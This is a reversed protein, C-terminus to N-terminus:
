ANPILSEIQEFTEKVAIQKGPRLTLITCSISNTQGLIPLTTTKQTGKEQLIIEFPDLRCPQEILRDGQMAVQTLEIFNILKM